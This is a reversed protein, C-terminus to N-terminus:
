CRDETPRYIQGIRQAGANRKEEFTRTTKTTSDCAKGVGRGREIEKTTTTKKKHKITYFLTTEEPVQSLEAM